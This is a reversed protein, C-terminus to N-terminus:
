VGLTTCCIRSIIATALLTGVVYTSIVTAAAETCMVARIVGGRPYSGAFMTELMSRLSTVVAIPVTPTVTVSDVTAMSFREGSGNGDGDGGAGNDAGSGDGGGGSGNGGGGGNGVGLVELAGVQVTLGDLKSFEMDSVAITLKTEPGAAEPVSAANTPLSTRPTAVAPVARGKPGYMPVIEKEISM